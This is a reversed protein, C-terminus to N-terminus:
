GATFILIYQRPLAGESRTKLKFGAGSLEDIVTDATLRMEQPPGPIGPDVKYDVIVLRGGPAVKDRLGKFYASRDSIHHYTDVLLLVDVAAPVKPDNPSGVVGEVNKLGLGSARKTTYEVMSPEIDIAYVKGMPVEPAIRVVWYGTGAGIEAVTSNSSLELHRVVAEPKQWEARAPDDFRQAWEEPSKFGDGHHGHGGHGHGNHGTAGGCASVGLTILMAMASGPIRCTRM